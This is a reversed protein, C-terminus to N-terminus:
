EGEPRAQTRMQQPAHSKGRRATRVARLQQRLTHLVAQAADALTAGDQVVCLTQGALLCEVQMQVPPQHPPLQVRYTVRAEWIGVAPTSLADLRAALWGRLAPTLPPDTDAIHLRM